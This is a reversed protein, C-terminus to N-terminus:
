LATLIRHKFIVENSFTCIGGIVLPIFYWTRKKVLQFIHFLTTLGFAVIFIMAPIRSPIYRYLVYANPDDLAPRYPETSMNSATNEVPIALLSFESHYGHYQHSPQAFSAAQTTILHCQEINIHICSNEKANNVVGADHM